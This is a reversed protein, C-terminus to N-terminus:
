QPLLHFDIIHKVSRGNFVEILQNLPKASGGPLISVSSSLLKKGTRLSLIRSSTLLLTWAQGSYVRASQQCHGCSQQHSWLPTRFVVDPRQTLLQSALSQTIGHLPAEKWSNITKWSAFFNGATISSLIKTVKKAVAWFKERDPSLNVGM